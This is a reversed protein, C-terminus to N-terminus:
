LQSIAMSGSWKLLSMKQRKLICKTFIFVANQNIVGLLFDEEIGCLAHSSPNKLKRRDCEQTERVAMVVVKEIETLCNTNNMQPHRDYDHKTKNKTNRAGRMM